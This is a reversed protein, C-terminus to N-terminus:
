NLILKGLVDRRGRKGTGALTSAHKGETQAVSDAPSKKKAGPRKYLTVNVQRYRKQKEAVQIPNAWVGPSNLTSSSINCSEKSSGDARLLGETTSRSPGKNEQHALYEEKIRTYIASTESDAAPDQLVVPHVFGANVPGSQPRLHVRSQLPLGAAAEERPPSPLARLSSAGSDAEEKIVSM